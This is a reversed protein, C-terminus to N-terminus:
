KIFLMKKTKSYNGVSLKYFYIGSSLHEGNFQIKYNGPPQNKNVLIAIEKGLIDYVELLVTSSSQLSSNMKNKINPIQYKIITTPNFPNPYNQSLEFNYITENRKVDSIWNAKGVFIGRGHTAVAITNDSTRSDLAQVIATGIINKGQQIWNTNMSDLVTTSFLGASTGVFYYTEENYTLITAARLSPGPNNSNGELNGEIKIFNEGGNNSYYLGVVNYNSLVVIIENGNKSNIAIDQINAGTPADPLTLEIGGKLSTDANELKIIKPPEDYSSIGIYLLHEPNKESVRIATIAFWSPIQFNDLKEWGINVGGYLFDPISSLDNNRWLYSGAPYYMINEDIPDIVFPNIFDQGSAKKPYVDCGGVDYSPNGHVDYSIRSVIGEQSSVYCKSSGFYAFAGDGYSLDNSETSAFNSKFKFYPTGNDQTGGMIRNDNGTRPIAVTYFQTINYGHNKTEWPFYDTYNTNTIDSTFSIGGDHGSWVNNPHKKDFVIIHQDPHHNFFDGGDPSYGGIWDTETNELKTNFGDTSRFLNSAGAIVFNKNDPKVALVFNYNCQALLNGRPYIDPLNQTLDISTNEELNLRFLRANNNGSNTLVYVINSQSEAIAMVTREHTKPYNLPTVNSWNKGDDTSYYIGPKSKSTDACGNASISAILTGNGAVTIDSYRHYNNNGLSNEFTNGEDCSRFIGNRNTAIFVSGTKPNVIIKLVYDFPSDFKTFDSKTNPLIDWTVGNNTSKYIGDGTYSSADTSASNGRYEGSAFYWINTHGERPDQVISTVSLLSNNSSLFHWNMGKDTTEWIGGSVGGALVRNSNTVDIALARTRGGVDNPGAEKWEFPEKNTKLLFENQKSISKAYAIERARINIPVTNSKPDRTIRFYYKDRQQATREKDSFEKKYHVKGLIALEEINDKQSTLISLMFLLFIIKISIIKM